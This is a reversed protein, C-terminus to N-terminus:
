TESEPRTPQDDSAPYYINEGDTSTVGSPTGVAAMSGTNSPSGSSIPPMSGTVGKATVPPIKGTLGTTQAVRSPRRHTRVRSVVHKVPKAVAQTVADSYDRAPRTRWGFKLAAYRIGLVLVVCTIAAYQDFLHNQKMLAFALAGILAASVYVTGAQFAEPERNMCIDRVIGGGNATITGLIVAPVIDLGASLAKGTGIVAWLAVSLNDLFDVFPDFYTILKGFYFVAVGTIVCAIILNPKQFAYIGYDQLLVDRMIGGALGVVIAICCVGFIDYRARVASLAGFVAGAITAALELWYPIALATELM